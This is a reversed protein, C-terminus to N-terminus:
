LQSDTHASFLSIFKSLFWINKAVALSTSCLIVSSQQLTEELKQTANKLKKKVQFYNSFSEISDIGLTQYLHYNSHWIDVQINNHAEDKATLRLWSPTLPCLQKVTISVRHDSPQESEVTGTEMRFTKLLFASAKPIEGKIESSSQQFHIPRKFSILSRINREPNYKHGQVM